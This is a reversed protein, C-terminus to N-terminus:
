AIGASGFLLDEFILGKLLLILFIKHNSLLIILSKRLKIELILPVDTLLIKWIYLLLLYHKHLFNHFPCHLPRVLRQNELQQPVELSLLHNVDQIAINTSDKVTDEAISEQLEKLYDILVLGEVADLAYERM